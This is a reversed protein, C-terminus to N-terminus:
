SFEFRLVWSLALLPTRFSPPAGPPVSFTFNTVLVDSTLEMHESYLRRIACSDRARLSPPLWEGRVEEETEMMVSVMMCRRAGSRKAPTADEGRGFSDRFDLVAGFTAGPHLVQRMPPQLTFKVLLDDGMRLNYTRQSVSTVVPEVGPSKAAVDPGSPRRSMPSVTFSSGPASFESECVSPPPMSMGMNPNQNEIADNRPTELVVDSEDVESGSAVLGGRSRRLEGWQLPLREGPSAFAVELTPAEGEAGSQAPGGRPSGGGGIARTSRDMGDARPWVQFAAKVQLRREGGRRGCEGGPALKASVVVEYVYRVSTGKFSPPLTRPLRLGVAFRRSTGASLPCDDGLRATESRFIDRVVRRSDRSAHPSSALYAPAVWGPDVREAGSVEVSLDALRLASSPPGPAGDNAVDVAARFADGPHYCARDPHVELRLPGSTASSM